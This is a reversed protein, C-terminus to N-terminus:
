WQAGECHGLQYWLCVGTCSMRVSTSLQATAFNSQLKSGVPLPCSGDQGGSAGFSIACSCLVSAPPRPVDTFLGGICALSVAVCVNGCAPGHVAGAGQACSYLESGAPLQVNATMAVSAAPFTSACGSLASGQCTSMAANTCIVPPSAPAVMVLRAGVLCGDTM